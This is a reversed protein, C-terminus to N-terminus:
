NKKNSEEHPILFNHPCYTPKGLRSCIRQILTVSVHLVINQADQEATDLDIDLEEHFFTELVKTRHILENVIQRGFVTLVFGKREIKELIEEEELKSLIAYARPRSFSMLQGMEKPGILPNEDHARIKTIYQRIVDKEVATLQTLDDM